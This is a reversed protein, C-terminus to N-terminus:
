QGDWRESAVERVELESEGDKISATSASVWHIGHDAKGGPPFPYEATSEKHVEVHIGGMEIASDSRRGHGAGLGMTKSVLSSIGAGSLKKDRRASLVGGQPRGDSINYSNESRSTSEVSPLPTSSRAIYIV